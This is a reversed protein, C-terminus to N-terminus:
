PPTDRKEAASEIRNMGAMYSDRACGLPAEMKMLHVENGGTMRRMFMATLQRSVRMTERHHSQGAGFVQAEHRGERFRAELARARSDKIGYVRDARKPALVVPGSVPQVEQHPRIRKQVQVSPLLILLDQRPVPRMRARIRASNRQPAGGNM